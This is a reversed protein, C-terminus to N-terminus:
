NSLEGFGKIPRWYLCAVNQAPHMKAPELMYRGLNYSNWVEVIEYDYPRPTGPAYGYPNLWMRFGPPPKTSPVSTM